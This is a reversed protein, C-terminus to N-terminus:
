KDLIHNSIGTKSFYLLNEIVRQVDEESMAHHIPLCIVEDAMKTAIPLNAPSASPLGRYM